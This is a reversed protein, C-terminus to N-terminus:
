ETLGAGLDSACELIKVAVDHSNGGGFMSRECKQATLYKGIIGEDSNCKGVGIAKTHEGAADM